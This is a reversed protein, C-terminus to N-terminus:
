NEKLRAINFIVDTATTHIQFKKLVGTTLWQNIKQQVDTLKKQDNSPVTIIDIRINEM